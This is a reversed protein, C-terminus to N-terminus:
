SPSCTPKRNSIAFAYSGASELLGLGVPQAKNRRTSPDRKNIGGSNWAALSMPVAGVVRCYQAYSDYSTGGPPAVFKGVGPKFALMIKKIHKGTAKCEPSCFWRRAGCKQSARCRKEVRSKAKKRCRTSCMHQGCTTPTFLKGCFWCTHQRPGAVQVPNFELGRLVNIRMSVLPMSYQPHAAAWNLRWLIQRVHPPKIGLAAGTAVSDEGCRFYRYVVGLALLHERGLWCIRTDTTKIDRAMRRLIASDAGAKKADVYKKSLKGIIEVLVPKSAELKKIARALREEMTGTQLRRFNARVEMFRVLVTRLQTDNHVWEPTELRRGAGPKHGKIVHMSDAYDIGTSKFDHGDFKAQV